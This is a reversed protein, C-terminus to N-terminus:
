QKRLSSGMLRSLSAAKEASLAGMIKAKQRADGISNILQSALKDDFTEIIKAAEPARMAGYIKALNKIKMSEATDNKTVAREFREREGALMLRLSDAERVQMAVREEQEKLRSREEVLALKEQQVAQYTASQSLAASDMRSDYKMMKVDEPENVLGVLPQNMVIKMGGTAFMVTFYLVPLSIIAFVLVIILDRPKMRSGEHRVSNVPTDKLLPQAVIRCKLNKEM